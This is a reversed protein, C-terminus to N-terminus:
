FWTQTKALLLPPRLYVVSLWLRESLQSGGNSVHGRAPPWPMANQPFCIAGAACCGKLARWRTTRLLVRVM